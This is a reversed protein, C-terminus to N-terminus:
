ANNMEYCSLKLSNETNDSTFHESAKDGIQFLMDLISLTSHCPKPHVYPQYINFVVEINNASFLKLDLYEKGGLGSLYTTGKLKKCIDILIETKKGGAQLDSAFVVENHIGLHKRICMIFDVNLDMLLAHKRHLIEYIEEAFFKFFSTKLYSQVLTKWYKSVWNTAYCIEMECIKKEIHGKIKVPVTLWLAENLHNRILNRNQWNNKTFQVCDLIVYVDSQAMKHFFGAWPIHEPQHIAIKMKITGGM